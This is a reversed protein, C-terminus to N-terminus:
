SSSSASSCCPPAWTASSSLSVSASWGLPSPAWTMFRSVAPASRAALPHFGTPPYIGAFFIALLRKAVEGPQFTQPRVPDLRPCWNGRRQIRPCTAPDPAIRQCCPSIFTFRRLVRHDALFFVVAIAALSWAGDFSTTARTTVPFMLRHIMALYATSPWWSGSTNRLNPMNRASGPVGHFALAAVALLSSQFWFDSDFAKEADVGVLMNAGIGVALALILLALEVNRRPKPMTNVQSM